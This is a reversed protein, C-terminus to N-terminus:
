PVIIATPAANSLAQPMLRQWNDLIFPIMEIALAEKVQVSLTQVGNTGPASWPAPLLEAELTGTNPPFEGYPVWVSNTFMLECWSGGYTPTLGGTLLAVNSGPSPIYGDDEFMFYKGEGSPTANWLRIIQGEVGDAISPRSTLTGPTGAIINTAIIVDASPIFTYNLDPLSIYNTTKATFSGGGGSGLSVLGISGPAVYGIAQGVQGTELTRNILLNESAWATSPYIGIDQSRVAALALVASLVFWGCKMTMM